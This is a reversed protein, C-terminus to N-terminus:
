LVAQTYTHRINRIGGADMGWEEQSIRTDGMSLSFFYSLSSDDMPVYEISWVGGPEFGSFPILTSQSENIGTQTVVAQKEIKDVFSDISFEDAGVKHYFSREINISTSVNVADSNANFRSDSGIWQWGKALYPLIGSSAGAAPPFASANANGSPFYVPNTVKFSMSCTPIQQPGPGQITISELFAQEYRTEGIQIMSGSGTLYNIGSLFLPVNVYGDLQISSNIPSPAVLSTSTHTRLIQVDAAQNVSARTAFFMTAYSNPNTDGEPM